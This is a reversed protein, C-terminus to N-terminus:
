KCQGSQAVHVSHVGHTRADQAASALNCATMKEGNPDFRTAASVLTADIHAMPVYM